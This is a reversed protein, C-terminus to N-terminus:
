GPHLHWESCKQAGFPFFLKWKSLCWTGSHCSLHAWAKERKGSGKQRRFFELRQEFGDQGLNEVRSSGSILAVRSAISSLSKRCLRWGTRVLPDCSVQRLAGEWWSQSYSCLSLPLPCSFPVWKVRFDDATMRSNDINLIIKNNDITACVIQFFFVWEQLRKETDEPELTGM